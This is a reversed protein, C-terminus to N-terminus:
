RIYLWHQRLESQQKMTKESKEPDKIRGLELNLLDELHKKETQLEEWEHSTFNEKNNLDESSPLISDFRDLFDQYDRDMGELRIRIENLRKQTGFLTDHTQNLIVKM